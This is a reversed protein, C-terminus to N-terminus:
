QTRGKRYQRRIYYDDDPEIVGLRIGEDMESLLTPWEAELQHILHNLEEQKNIIKNVLRIKEKRKM